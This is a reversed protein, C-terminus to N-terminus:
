KAGDIKIWNASTIEIWEENETVNLVDSGPETGFKVQDAQFFERVTENNNPNVYSAM